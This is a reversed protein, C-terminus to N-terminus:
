QMYKHSSKKKSLSASMDIKGVVTRTGRWAAEFHKKSRLSVKSNNVKKNENKVGGKIVKQARLSKISTNERSFEKRNECQSKLRTEEDAKLHTLSYSSRIYKQEETNSSGM